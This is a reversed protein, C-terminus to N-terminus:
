KIDINLQTRGAFPGTIIAESQVVSRYLLLNVSNKIRTLKNRGVSVQQRIGCALEYNLHTDLNLRNSYIVKSYHIYLGRDRLKLYVCRFVKIIVKNNNNCKNNFIKSLWFFIICKSLVKKLILQQM